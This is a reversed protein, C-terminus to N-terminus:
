RIQASTFDQLKREGDVLRIQRAVRTLAQLLAPDQWEGVLDEQVAVVYYEGPALATLSYTGDKAARATRM